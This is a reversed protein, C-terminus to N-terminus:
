KGGPFIYKAYPSSLVDMYQGKANKYPISAHPGTSNGRGPDSQGGGSLGIITGGSVKQGQGVNISVLHEFGIEDGTKTNRASVFNGSGDNFGKSSRIIEWEGPPLSLPTGQPISFDTGLNVGGSYKEISSRKGFKQTVPANVSLVSGQYAMEKQPTQVSPMNVRTQERSQQAMPQVDLQMPQSAQKMSTIQDIIPPLTKTVPYSTEVDQPKLTPIFVSVNEIKGVKKELDQDM